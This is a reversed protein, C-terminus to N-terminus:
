QDDKEDFSLYGVAEPMRWISNGDVDIVGTKVAESSFVTPHPLTPPPQHDGLDCREKTSPRIVYRPM